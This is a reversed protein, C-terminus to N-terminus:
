GTEVIWMKDTLSGQSLIQEGKEFTEQKFMYMLVHFEEISLFKNMRPKLEEPHVKSEKADHKDKSKYDQGPILVEPDFYSIKRFANLFFKKYPDNYTYVYNKLEEQLEPYDQILYGFKRHNITGM